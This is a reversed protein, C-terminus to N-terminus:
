ITAKTCTIKWQRLVRRERTSWISQQAELDAQWQREDTSSHSIHQPTPPMMRRRTSPPAEVPSGENSMEGQNEACVFSRKNSFPFSQPEVVELDSVSSVGECMETVASSPSVLVDNVVLLLTWTM